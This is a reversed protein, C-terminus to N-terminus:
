KNHIINCICCKKSYLDLKHLSFCDFCMIHPLDKLKVHNKNLNEYDITINVKYPNSGCLEYCFMCKEKINNLLDLLVRETENIHAYENNKNFKEFCIFGCYIENNIEFKDIIEEGCKKCISKIIDDIIIKQEKSDFLKDMLVLLDFNYNSSNNDNCMFSIDEKCINKFDSKEKISKIFCSKISNLIHRELCNKCFIIDIDPILGKGLQSAFNCSVCENSILFIDSEKNLVEKSIDVSKEYIAKSKVKENNKEFNNLYIIDEHLNSYISLIPINKEFFSKSYAIDYHTKRYIIYIDDKGELGCKFIKTDIKSKVGYDYDIVYLNVNLVYCTIYVVVKEAYTKNVFLDREYFNSFSPIGYKDEYDIPLLNGIKIGDSYYLEKNNELYSYILYRILINIGDDFIQLFSLKLFTEYIINLPKNSDLSEFIVYLCNVFQNFDDNTFSKFLSYKRLDSLNSIIEGVKIIVYKFFSIDKEIVKAELLSFMVSRYFCNGDGNVFRWSEMYNKLEHFDENLNNISESSLHFTTEVLYEVTSIPGIFPLQSLDIMNEKNIYDLLKVKELKENIEKTAKCNIIKNNIMSEFQNELYFFDTIYDFDKPQIYYYCDDYSNIDM